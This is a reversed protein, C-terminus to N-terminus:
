KEASESIGKGSWDAIPIYEKSLSTHIVPWHVIKCKNKIIKYDIQAQANNNYQRLVYVVMRM